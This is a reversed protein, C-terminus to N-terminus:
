VTTEILTIRLASLSVQTLISPTRLIRSEQRLLSAPRSVSLMKRYPVSTFLLKSGAARNVRTAVPYLVRIAASGNAFSGHWRHESSGYRRKMLRFNAQSAAFAM